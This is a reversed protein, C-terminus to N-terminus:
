FYVNKKFHLVSLKQFIYEYVVLFMNLINPVGLILPLHVNIDHLKKGRQIQMRTGGGGLKNSDM